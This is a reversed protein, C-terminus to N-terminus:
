APASVQVFERPSVARGSRISEYFAAAAAADQVGAEISVFPPRGARVDEVFRRHQNFPDAANGMSVRDLVVSQPKSAMYQLV